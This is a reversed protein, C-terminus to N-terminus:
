CMLCLGKGAGTLQRRLAADDAAAPAAAQPQEHVESDAAGPLQMSVCFAHM